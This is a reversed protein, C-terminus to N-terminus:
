SGIKRIESVADALGAYHRDPIPFEARLESIIAREVYPSGFRFLTRITGSFLEPHEFIDKRSLNHDIEFRSYVQRVRSEGFKSFGRDICKQFVRETNGSQFKTISIINM